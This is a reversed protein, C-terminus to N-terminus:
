SILLYENVAEEISSGNDIMKLMMEMDNDSPVSYNGIWELRHLIATEMSMM